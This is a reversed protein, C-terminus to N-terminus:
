DKTITKWVLGNNNISIRILGDESILSAEFMSTTCEIVPTSIFGPLSKIELGLREIDPTFMGNGEYYKRELYYVERLFWKAAEEYKEIFSVEIGGAIETSFQVYGWMEPYHINIVGQPTWVWNDEPYPKNAAPNIQKQYKGNVEVTKWEVRSFNVRWQDHNRPPCNVETIEKFAEWPFAVEVTWCSDIDGPKNITGYVQVGSKLGKIDWGHLAANKIDRYPQVLLLDWVTNLANMEFECYSHTDGDPDIFIEFDNDYFIIDDRNKLTGWIDPEYLIAAVYFYKEDWLMKVKTGFRPIPNVPGEIDVFDDTWKVRGWSIEDLRGDIILAENSHYCVYKKPSFEIQPIPVSQAFCFSNLFVISLIKKLM